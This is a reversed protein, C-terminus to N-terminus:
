DLAQDTMRLPRASRGANGSRQQGHAIADRRTGLIHFLGVGFAVEIVYGLARALHFDLVRNGIADREATLIRGNDQTM